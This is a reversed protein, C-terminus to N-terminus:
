ASIWNWKSGNFRDSAQISYIVAMMSDRPHNFEMRANSRKDVVPVDDIESLDKRTIAIFDNILWETEYENQFPIILQPRIGEELGCYEPHPLKRDIIDILEQIAASKDISIRSTEDGHEDQVDHHFQFPKTISSMSRCGLLKDRGLGEFLEGTRKDAGGDQMTKVQHVGYGLDAVGIDCDYEKFLNVMYRSQDFQDERPRPEIYALQYLNPIKWHIMIAVVTKSASPGSGWDIGLSVTIKEGFRYKLEKVEDASLMKITNYPKMCELMMERTIPRRKAKHFNGLIHTTYISQSYEKQKYELAFSPATKYKNVADDITLPIFPMMNQPIHYGRFHSDPNTSKWRGSLVDKMYEGIMLGKEDFQLKDRWYPDDYEWERKDSREWLKEYPSGKEGGIGLIRIKGKTMTMSSELKDMFEIEQYQAEDLVILSPSKGEVKKFGGIDTSLYVTSNNKMSVEGITGLGNRPFEKLMPNVSLTGVRFRQQSFAHLRNEDDVVYVVQTNPKSTAEHAIIDTCYTSKFVQRGATIIVNWHNDNYIDRWFPLLSVDRPQGDVIPRAKNIWDLIDTPLDPLTESYSKLEKQIGKLLKSSNL